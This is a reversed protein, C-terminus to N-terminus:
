PNLGFLIKGVQWLIPAAQIATAIAMVITAWLIYNNFKEQQKSLELGNKQVATLELIAKEIKTESM